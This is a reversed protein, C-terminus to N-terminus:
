KKKGNYIGGSSLQELANHIVENIIKNAAVAAEQDISNLETSVDHGIALLSKKLVSFLRRLDATVTTASIYRGETVALKIEEQALKVEKLNAEAKLKRAEASEAKGGGYKWDVLDRLDWKGYDKKPAGRKEWNNLTKASIDFFSCIESTGRIWWELNNQNDM